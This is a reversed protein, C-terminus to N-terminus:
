SPCSGSTTSNGIFFARATRSISIKAAIYFLFLAKSGGVLFRNDFSSAVHEDSSAASFAERVPEGGAADFDDQRTLAIRNRSNRGKDRPRRKRRRDGLFVTMRFASATASRM